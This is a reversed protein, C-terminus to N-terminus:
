GEKGGKGCRASHHRAYGGKGRRKRKRTFLSRRHVCARIRLRAAHDRRLLERKGITEKGGGKERISALMASSYERGRGRGREEYHDFSFQFGAEGYSFEKKGLEGRGGGGRSIRCTRLM